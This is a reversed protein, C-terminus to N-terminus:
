YLYFLFRLLGKVLLRLNKTAVSDNTQYDVIGNSVSCRYIGSDMYSLDQLILQSSNSDNIGTYEQIKTKNDPALHIWNYFTYINPLANPLCWLTISVNAETIEGRPDTILVDPFDSLFTAALLEM